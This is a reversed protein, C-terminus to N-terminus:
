VIGLSRCGIIRGKDDRVSENPIFVDRRGPVREAVLSSVVYITNPTPDPLGEVEGYRTTTIPIDFGTNVDTKVTVVDVCETSTTVRALNGSPEIRLITNDEKVINITHPTLNVITTITM